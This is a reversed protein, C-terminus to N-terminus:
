GLRNFLDLMFSRQPMVAQRQAEPLGFLAETGHVRSFLYVGRQRVVEKLVETSKAINTQTQHDLQLALALDRLEDSGLKGRLEEPLIVDLNKLLFKTMTEPSLGDLQGCITQAASEPTTARRGAQYYLEDNTYVSATPVGYEAAVERSATLLKQFDAAIKEDTEGSANQFELFLAETLSKANDTSGAEAVADAEAGDVHIAALEQAWTSPRGPDEVQALYLVARNLHARRLEDPTPAVYKEGHLGAAIQSTVMSLQGARYAIANALELAEGVEFPPLAESM